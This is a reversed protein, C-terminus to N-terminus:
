HLIPDENDIKTNEVKEQNVKNFTAIIKALFDDFDYILM